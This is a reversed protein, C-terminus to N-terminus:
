PEVSVSGDYRLRALVDADDPSADPGFGLVAVGAASCTPCRLAVVALMDSPDSAGELRRVAVVEPESPDADHGCESCMLRGGPVSRVDSAFGREAFRALVGTLSDNDSPADTVHDM